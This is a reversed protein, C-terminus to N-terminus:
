GGKNELADYFVKRFTEGIPILKDAIKIRNREISEIKNLAVMYSKHVRIFQSVPLMEELKKFSQLTIVRGAVTKIILYEKLGEIYLIDKFDVRQMRYETKVFMYTRGEGTAHKHSEPELPPNKEIMGDYVKEVAKVFREFSIPKLLYDVVDLDFAQIAYQDYATTFIVRPKNKLVKLLQIGTLGEMQIDLFILDVENNRLFELTDIGNDFTKLLNLFPVKSIYDEMQMLAPPEDDVAICNIKM